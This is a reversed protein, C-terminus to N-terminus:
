HAPRQKHHECQDFAVAPQHRRGAAGHPLQLAAPAAPAATRHHGRAPRGCHVHDRVHGGLAHQAGPQHPLHVQSQLAIDAGWTVVMATLCQQDSAMIVGQRPLLQQWTCHFIMSCHAPHQVYSLTRSAAARWSVNSATLPDSSHQLLDPGFILSIFVPYNVCKALTRTRAIGWFWKCYLM